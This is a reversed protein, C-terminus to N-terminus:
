SQHKSLHENLRTLLKELNKQTNDLHRNLEKLTKADASDVPQRILQKALFLQALATALPSKLRHSISEAPSTPNTSM